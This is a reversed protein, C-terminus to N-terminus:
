RMIQFLIPLHYTAIGIVTAAVMTTATAAVAATVTTPTIIHAAVM